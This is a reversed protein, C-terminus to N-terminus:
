THSKIVSIVNKTVSLPRSWRVTILNQKQDQAEPRRDITAGDPLSPERLHSETPVFDNTM